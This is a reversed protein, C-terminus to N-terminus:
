QILQANWITAGHGPATAAGALRLYNPLVYTCGAGGLAGEKSEVGAALRSITYLYGAVTRLM